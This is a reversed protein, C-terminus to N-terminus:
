RTPRAARRRGWRAPSRGASRRPAPRSSRDEVGDEHQDDDERDHLAPRQRPHGAPEPMAAGTVGRSTSTSDAGSSSSSASRICSVTGGPERRCPTYRGSSRSGSSAATTRTTRSPRDKTGSSVVRSRARPGPAAPTPGASAAGLGLPPQARDAPRAPQGAPAALGAGGLSCRSLQPAGHRAHGCSPPERAPRGRPRVRRGEAPSTRSPPRPRRHRRRSPRRQRADDRSSAHDGTIRSPHAVPGDVPLARGLPM